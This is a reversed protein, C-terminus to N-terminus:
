LNRSNQTSFNEELGIALALARLIVLAFAQMDRYHGEMLEVWGEVQTPHNNPGRLPRGAVVDPHDEPLHFGMNFTEKSDFPKTPDLNEANLCGYGRHHKSKRIDVTLKEELPLSFFRKATEMVRELQERPIPHGVVYFFGWTRCAHDIQRAVQMVGEKRQFLPGVDIIPVSDSAM